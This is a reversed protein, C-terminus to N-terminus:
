IQRRGGNRSAQQPRRRSSVGLAEARVVTSSSACAQGNLQSACAIRTSERVIRPAAEAAIGGLAGKVLRPSIRCKPRVEALYVRLAEAASPPLFVMRPAWGERRRIITIRGNELDVDRVRLLPLEHGGVATGCLLELVTREVSGMPLEAIAPKM